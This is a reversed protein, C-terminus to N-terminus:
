RRYYQKLIELDDTDVAKDGNLDARVDWSASEPRSGFARAIIVLDDMNYVGDNNSDTGFVEVECEAYRSSDSAGAARILATGPSVATVVGEATVNVVGTNTSSWILNKNVAYDPFVVTTLTETDGIHMDLRNKGLSVSEVPADLVQVAADYANVIGYGYNNDKGLAGKDKATAKIVADIEDPILGPDIAKLIAAAGSVMPASFSTGSVEAYKNDPICTAIGEGPAVIDVENNYNSFDSKSEDEAISGVSIVNAYSAPYNYLTSYDNGASAIVTVGQEIAHQIADNEANSYEDSGMSINIIDANKQVAGYIAEIFDSLYSGGSADAVKLPLIKVNLGGAVGVIGAGNGAEAAIIGAVATGHWHDDRVDTNNNVYNYGGPAIRNRLDPHILDIGTDIVAVVVANGGAPVIGLAQEAKIRTMGWQQSYFPDSFAGHLKLRKNKEAYLVSSDKKLENIVGEVAGADAVDLVQLDAAIRSIKKVKSAVAASLTKKKESGAKYKVLVKNAKDEALSTGPAAQPSTGEAIAPLVLNVAFFLVILLIAFFKKM